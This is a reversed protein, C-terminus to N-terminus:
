WPAPAPIAAAVLGRGQLRGAAQDQRGAAQRAADRDAADPAGQPQHGAQEQGAGVQGISEHWEIAGTGATAPSASAICYRDSPRVNRRTFLQASVFISRDDLGGQHPAKTQRWERACKRECIATAAGDWKTDVNKPGLAILATVQERHCRRYDYEDAYVVTVQEIRALRGRSHRVALFRSSLAASSTGVRLIRRTCPEFGLVKRSPLSNSISSM